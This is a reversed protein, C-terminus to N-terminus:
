FSYKLSEYSKSLLNTAKNYCKGLSLKVVNELLEETLTATATLLLLICTKIVVEARYHPVQAPAAELLKM